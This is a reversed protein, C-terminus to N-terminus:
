IAITKNYIHVSHQTTNRNKIRFMTSTRNEAEAKVGHKNFRDCQITELRIGLTGLDTSEVRQKIGHRTEVATTFWVNEIADAKHKADGIERLYWCNAM